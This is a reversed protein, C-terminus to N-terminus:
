GWGFSAGCGRLRCCVRLLQFSLGCPERQFQRAGRILLRCQTDRHRHGAEASRANSLMSGPSSVSEPDRRSDVGAPRLRARAPRSAAHRARVPGSGTAPLRRSSSDRDGACRLAMFFDQSQAGAYVGRTAVVGIGSVQQDSRGRVSGVRLSWIQDQIRRVQPSAPARVTPATLSPMGGPRTPAAAPSASGADTAVILFIAQLPPPCTMRIVRGGTGQGFGQNRQHRTRRTGVLNSQQHRQGPREGRAPSDALSPKM